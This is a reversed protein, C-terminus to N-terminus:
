RKPEDSFLEAQDENGASVMKKKVRWATREHVGARQAADRVGKGARIDDAVQQRARRNLAMPGCPIVEHRVGRRRGDADAVAFHNCIREALEPGVLETLWHDPRSQAPIDVRIGGKARAIAFAADNGAM